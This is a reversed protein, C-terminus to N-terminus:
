QSISFLLICSALCSALLCAPLCAFLLVFLCNHFCEACVNGRRYKVDKVLMNALETTCIALCGEYDRKASKLLALLAWARADGSNLTLARKVLREAEDGNGTEAAILSQFYLAEENREDVQQALKFEERACDYLTSDELRTRRAKSLFHLGRLVFYPVQMRRDLQEGDIGALITFAEDTKSPLALYLKVLLLLSFVNDGKSRLYMRGALVAEEHKGASMLSHFLNRYLSVDSVTTQFRTKHLKVIGDLYGIRALRRINNADLRLDDLDRRMQENLELSEMLMVCLIIEEKVSESQWLQSLDRGSIPYQGDDCFSKFNFRRFHGDLLGVYLSISRVLRVTANVPQKKQGPPNVQYFSLFSRLITAAEMPRGQQKLLLGGRYLAGCIFDHSAKSGTLQAQRYRFLFETITQHKVSADEKSGHLELAIGYFYLGLIGFVKELMSSQVIETDSLEYLLFRKTLDFDVKEFSALADVLSDKDFLFLSVIGSLIHALKLELDSGNCDAVARRVSEVMKRGCETTIQYAILHSLDLELSAAHLRINRHIAVYGHM